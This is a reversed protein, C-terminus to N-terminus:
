LSAHIPSLTAVVDLINVAITLQDNDKVIRFSCQCQTLWPLLFDLFLYFFKLCGLFIGSFYNPLTFNAIADKRERTTATKAFPKFFDFM